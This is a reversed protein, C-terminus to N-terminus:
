TERLKEQRLCVADLGFNELRPDRACVKKAATYTKTAATADNIAM